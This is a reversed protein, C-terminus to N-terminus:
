NDKENTSHQMWDARWIISPALLRDVNWGSSKLKTIFISYYRDVWLCSEAHSSGKESYSALMLAHIYSQLIDAATSEKHAIVEVIKEKELLVYKGKKYLSSALNFLEVMEIHKLSSIRVGLKIRRYLFSSSKSGWFNIWVPLVHEMRSVRQPSLVQGTDMFHQLLISTRETNLTTLCLCRVAKYNAFLHFLTLSLFSFWIFLPQGRTVHALLMGMVMGAMTAVTEQSGEKASIDAANNELAFHQTLAARTAGSAVGTFSRSLSGLCIIVVFGSPFIPSVLDMLMGNGYMNIIMYGKRVLGLDNMFDAVLRWMKANSDLNSGQYFTFLVGGLMGTFDRLFWQFTAGIVTATQEGVGIAGLLAQTSLMCRIYTSLGQLSDWIQFPVYDPTVSGPFGEPVFAALVRRRFEVFRSGSRQISYSSSTATLLVTRTLNASSSGNWEEMVMEAVAM